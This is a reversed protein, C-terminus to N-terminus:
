RDHLVHHFRGDALAVARGHQVLYELAAATTAEAAWLVAEPISAGYIGIALERATMALDVSDGLLSEVQQIRERRHALYYDIVQAGLGGELEPGHGPLILEFSRAGVRELSDLYEALNGDPHAVVTTGRGLVHDGTLLTGGQGLFALHDHCHGPTPVVELSVGGVELSGGVEIRQYSSSPFADSHAFVPAGYHEATSFLSEAHDVHHHTVAVGVVEAERHVVVDRIVEHHASDLPGPDIVLVERGSPSFWLYTNTGDLTMPSPNPAIIRVIPDRDFSSVKPLTGFPALTSRPDVIAMVTEM